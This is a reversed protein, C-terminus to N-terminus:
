SPRSRSLTNTLADLSLILDKYKSYLEYIRKRTFNKFEKLLKPINYLILPNYYKNVDRALNHYFPDHTYKPDKIESTISPVNTSQCNIDKPIERKVSTQRINFFPFFATFRYKM